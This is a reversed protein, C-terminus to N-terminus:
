TRDGRDAGNLAAAMREATRHSEGPSGTCRCLDIWGRTSSKEVVYSAAADSRTSFNGAM